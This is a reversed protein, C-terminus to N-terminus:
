RPYSLLLVPEQQVIAAGELPISFLALLIVFTKLLM